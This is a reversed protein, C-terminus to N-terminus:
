IYMAGKYHKKADQVILGYRINELADSRRPSMSLAGAMTAESESATPSRLASTDIAGANPRETETWARRSALAHDSYQSFYRTHQRKGPKNPHLAKNCTSAKMM